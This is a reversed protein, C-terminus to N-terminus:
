RPTEITSLDLRAVLQEHLRAKLATLFAPTKVIITPTANARGVPGLGLAELTKYRSSLGM